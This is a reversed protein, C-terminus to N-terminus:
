ELVVVQRGQQAWEQAKALYRAEIVNRRIKMTPTLFGNDMSWLDKVVVAHSLKEHPELGANVDDLLGQLEALLSERSGPDELERRGDPSPTLLVFPQAFGPGTV